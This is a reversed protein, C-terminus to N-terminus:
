RGGGGAGIICVLSLCGGPVFDGIVWPGGVDVRRLGAGADGFHLGEVVIGVDEDEERVVSVWKLHQWGEVLSWARVEVGPLRVAPFLFAVPSPQVFKGGAFGVLPYCSPLRNDFPEPLAPLFPRLPKLPM